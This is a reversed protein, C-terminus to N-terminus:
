KIKKENSAKVDIFLIPFDLGRATSNLSIQTDQFSDEVM